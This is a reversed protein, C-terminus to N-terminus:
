KKKAAQPAGKKNDTAKVQAVKAKEDPIIDKKVKTEAQAIKGGKKAPMQELTNHQQKQHHIWNDSLRAEFADRNSYLM